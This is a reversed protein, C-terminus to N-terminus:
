TWMKDTNKVILILKKQIKEKLADQMSTKKKVYESFEQKTCPKHCELADIQDQILFVEKDFFEKVEKMEQFHKLWEQNQIFVSNNILNKQREINYDLGNLGPNEPDRASYKDLEEIYNTFAAYVAMEVVKGPSEYGYKYGLFSKDWEGKRLDLLHQKKIFISKFWYIPDEVWIRYKVSVWIDFEHFIWYRIPYKKKMDRGWDDWGYEKKDTIFDPNWPLARPTEEKPIGFKSDLYKWFKSILYRM